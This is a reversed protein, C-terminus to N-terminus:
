QVYGLSRLRELLEESPPDATKQDGPENPRPREVAARNRVAAVMDLVERPLSELQLSLDNREAPDATLDFIELPAAAVAVGMNRDGPWPTFIVKYRGHIMVFRDPGYETSEATVAVAEPERGTRCAASLDRGRFDAEAPLSALTLVTPAVDLLSVWPAIRTNPPIAGPWRVFLPVHILEQYLSHGHGPSRADSHDWLDEGHDSLVILISRDLIGERKLTLLFEGVLRDAEVVDGDYLGRVWHREDETLTLRGKRIEEIEENTFRDSLRGRHAPDARDTHTYPSHVEYTHLFLFFPDDAVKRTWALALELTRELEDDRRDDSEHYIEFGQGFGFSASVYGDGTFAATRYGAQRLVEALMRQQPAIKTFDLRAHHDFPLKSTFLSAHTPLTWPAPAIAREFIMGEAALADMHPTLGRTNGHYGVRDARLTDLSVVIVPPRDGVRISGLAPFALWLVVAAAIGGATVGGLARGAAPFRRNGHAASADLARAIVVLAFAGLTTVFVFLTLRPTSVREFPYVIPRYPSLALWAVWCGVLAIVASTALRPARGWRSALVGILELALSVGGVWAAYRLVEPLVRSLALWATRLQLDGNLRVAWAGLVLGIAAGAALGQTSARALRDIM